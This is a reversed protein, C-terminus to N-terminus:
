QGEFFEEVGRRGSYILAEKQQRSMKKIRPGIGLTSISITREWDERLLVQRNLNEIVFVYLAEIYNRFKKIRYPALGRGKKDFAIQEESDLRIGITQRNIYIEKGNLFVTDIFQNSDAYRLDDFTRIPFNGTIGGDIMVYVSDGGKKAPKGDPSIFVGGFFIPIGASIRVATRIEMKPYTEYSLIELRQLSLNTATIYLDKFRSDSLSRNHLEEFTLDAKGTKDAIIKGMWKEIRNGKYWGFRAFLRIFGMPFGPKGDAFSKINLEYLVPIAEEPTYGLAIFTACIAGVSTGCVRKIDKLVGRKELELAVGGYAIGRIGGGEFVLNRFSESDAAIGINGPQAYLEVNGSFIHFYILLFILFVSVCYIADKCKIECGDPNGSFM